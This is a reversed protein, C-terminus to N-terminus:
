CNHKLNSALAAMHAETGWSSAYLHREKDLAKQLPEFRASNIMSKLAKMTDLHGITHQSLFKLAERREASLEFRGDDSSGTQNGNVDCCRTFILAVDDITQSVNNNIKNVKSHPQRHDQTIISYCQNEDDKKIIANSLSLQLAEPAGVLRGSSLVELARSPGILQVLRSGGGWGCCVAM